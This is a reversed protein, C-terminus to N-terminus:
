RRQALVFIVGEKGPLNKFFDLIYNKFAFGLATVVAVVVLAGLIIKILQSITLEM